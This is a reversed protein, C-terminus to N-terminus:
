EDREAELLYAILAPEDIRLRHLRTGKQYGKIVGADILEMVYHRLAYMSVEESEYDKLFTRLPMKVEPWNRVALLALKAKRNLKSRAILEEIDQAEDAPPRRLSTVTFFQDLTLCKCMACDLAALSRFHARSMPSDRGVDRGWILVIEFPTTYNVAAAQFPVRYLGLAVIWLAGGQHALRQLSTLRPGMHDLVSDLIEGPSRRDGIKVQRTKIEIAAEAHGHRRALILDCYEGPDPWQPRGLELPFEARRYNAWDASEIVSSLLCQFRNHIRVAGARMQEPTWTNLMDPRQIQLRSSQAM